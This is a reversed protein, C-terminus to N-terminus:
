AKMGLVSEKPIIFRNGAIIVGTSKAIIIKRDGVLVLYNTGLSLSGDSIVEISTSTEEVDTLPKVQITCVKGNYIFKADIGSIDESVSPPILEITIGETRAYRVFAEKAKEELKNGKRTTNVLIPLTQRKFFDGDPSYIDAFNSEIKQYFEDATRIKNERIFTKFITYNNVMKSIYETNIIKDNVRIDRNSQGYRFGFRGYVKTIYNLIKQNLASILYKKTTFGPGGQNDNLFVDQESAENIFQNFKLIM